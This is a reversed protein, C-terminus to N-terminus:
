RISTSLVAASTRCVFRRGCAARGVTKEERRERHGRRHVRNIPKELTNLNVPLDAIFVNLNISFSQNTTWMM